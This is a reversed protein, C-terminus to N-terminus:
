ETVQDFWIKVHVPQNNEDYQYDLMTQYGLSKMYENVRFYQEQTINQLTVEEGFLAKLGTFFINILVDDILVSDNEPNTTDLRLNYHNPPKPEEGFIVEFVKFADQEQTM